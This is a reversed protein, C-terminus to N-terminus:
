LPYVKFDKIYINLDNQWDVFCIGCNDVSSLNLNTTTIPADDIYFTMVGDSWEFKYNATRVPSLANLIGVLTGRTNQSTSIYFACVNQIKGTFEITFSKSVPIFLQSSDKLLFTNTQTSTLHVGDDTATATVNGSWEGTNVTGDFYRIYDQIDYIESLFM